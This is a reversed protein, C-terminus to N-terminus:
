DSVFYLTNPDKTTIADYQAQTGRWITTVSTSSVKNQVATSIATDTQQKTYYNSLDIGSIATKIAQDTQGSTYYNALDTDKLYVQETRATEASMASEIQEDTYQNAETVASEVIDGPSVPTVINVELNGLGVPIDLSKSNRDFIIM